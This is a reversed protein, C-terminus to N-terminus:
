PAAITVASSFGRHASAVIRVTTGPRAAEIIRGDALAMAVHGPYGILDGPRVEAMSRPHRVGGGSVITGSLSAGIDIGAHAYAQWVLGSCDYGHPGFRGSSSYPVGLQHMAFKIARAATDSPAASASRECLLRHEGAPCGVGTRDSGTGTQWVPRRGAGEGVYQVLNGNSHLVLQSGAAGTVGNTWRVVDGVDRVTLQGDAELTLRAGPQGATGSSWIVHTTGAVPRRLVVDGDAQVELTHGGSSGLSQGASLSAGASLRDDGVPAPGSPAVCAGAALLALAVVAARLQRASGRRREIM